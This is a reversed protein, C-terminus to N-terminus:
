RVSSKENRQGREIKLKKLALRMHLLAISVGDTRSDTIRRQKLKSTLTPCHNVLKAWMKPTITAFILGKGLAECTLQHLRKVLRVFALRVSHWRGGALSIKTM